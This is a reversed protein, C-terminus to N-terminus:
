VPLKSPTQRNQDPDTQRTDPRTISDINVLCVIAKQIKMAETKYPRIRLLYGHGQSDHVVQEVPALTKIVDRIMKPLDSVDIDPTIDAISRGVDTPIVNFLKQAALTFLRIHLDDDVL